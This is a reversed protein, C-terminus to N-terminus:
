GHLAVAAGVLGTGSGRVVVPIRQENAYKMVAAIEETSAAKVLVEPMQRIGGLEDHSYDEQIQEGSFVRDPATVGQLYRIDEATVAKYM